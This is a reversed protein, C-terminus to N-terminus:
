GGRRAAGHWGLEAKSYARILMCAHIYVGTMCSDHKVVQALYFHYTIRFAFCDFAYTVSRLDPSQMVIFSAFVINM